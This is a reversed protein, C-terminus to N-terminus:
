EKPYQEKIQKRKEQILIAKDQRKEVVLEWIAELIMEYTAGEDIYAQLRKKQYSEGDVVIYNLIVQDDSWEYSDLKTYQTEPNYDPINEAVVKAFLPKNNIKKVSIPETLQEKVSIINFDKDFKVFKM